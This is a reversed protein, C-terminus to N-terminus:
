RPRAPGTSTRARAGARTAPAVPRPSIRKTSTPPRATLAQPYMRAVRSTSDNGFRAALQGVSWVDKVPKTALDLYLPEKEVRVRNREKESCPISGQDDGVEPTDVDELAKRLNRSRSARHRPSRHRRPHDSREHRSARGGVRSSALWRAAASVAVVQLRKFAGLIGAVGRPNVSPWRYGTAVSDGQGPPDEAHRRRCSWSPSVIVESCGVTGPRQRALCVGRQLSGTTGRREGSRAAILVPRGCSHILFTKSAAGDEGPQEEGALEVM